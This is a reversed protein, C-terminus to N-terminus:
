KNGVARSKAVEDTDTAVGGTIHFNTRESRTVARPDRVLHLVLTGPALGDELLM